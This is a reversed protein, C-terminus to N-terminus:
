RLAATEIRIEGRLLLDKWCSSAAPAATMAFVFNDADEFLVQPLSGQPWFGAL